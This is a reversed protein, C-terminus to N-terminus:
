RQGGGHDRWRWYFTLGAGVAIALFVWFMPKHAAKEIISMLGLKDTREWADQIVEHASDNVTSAAGGLGLWGLLQQMWGIKSKVMPTPAPEEDTTSAEPEAADPLDVPDNDTDPHGDARPMDVFTPPMASAIEGGDCAEFHMPDTRHHYDGGWRFGQRKFADIVFQPMKGRGTNFGNHDPDLDIAAGFAHNSWKTASGRVKRPNYTGGTSSVGLKDLKAQDRGCAEWIDNLAAMLAPAAKRHFTIGKLPHGDYYMQFPPHVTVLQAAVGGPGSSGPNGYFRILEAQNDRPWKAM